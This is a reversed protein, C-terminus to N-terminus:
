SPWHLLNHPVLSAIDRYGCSRLSKPPRLPLRSKGLAMHQLSHCSHPQAAVKGPSYHRKGDQHRCGAQLVPCPSHFLLILIVVTSKINLYITGHLSLDTVKTEGM